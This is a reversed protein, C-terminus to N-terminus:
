SRFIGALYRVGTVLAHSAARPAIIPKAAAQSAEEVSRQANLVATRTQDFPPPIVRTLYIVGITAAVLVMLGLFGLIIAAIFLLVLSLDAWVSADGTQSWVILAILMLIMFLGIALPLYIQLWVQRRWASEVEKGSIDTRRKIERKLDFPDM